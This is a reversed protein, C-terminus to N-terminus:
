SRIRRIRGPAAPPAPDGRRRPRRVELRVQGVPTLDGASRGRFPAIRDRCDLTSAGLLAPRRTPAARGFLRFPQRGTLQLGHNALRGPVLRLGSAEDRLELPRACRDFGEVSAARGGGIGVPASALRREIRGIARRDRGPFRPRGLKPRSAIPQGLLGPTRSTPEGRPPAGAPAPRPMWGAPRPVSPGPPGRCRRPETLAFTGQGLRAIRQAALNGRGRRASIAARSARQRWGRRPRPPDRAARRRRVRPPRPGRGGERRRRAAACPPGRPGRLGGPDRRGARLAHDGLQRPESREPDRPETAAHARADVDLARGESGASARRRPPSESSTAASSAASAATAGIQASWGGASAGGLAARSPWSRRRKWSSPATLGYATSSYARGSPGVRAGRRGPMRGAFPSRGSARGSRRARCWSRRDSGPSRGPGRPPRERGAELLEEPPPNALSDSVSGASM